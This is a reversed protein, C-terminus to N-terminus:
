GPSIYKGFASLWWRLGRGYYNTCSITKKKDKENYFWKRENFRAITSSRLTPLNHVPLTDGQMVGADIDFFDTDEDPSQVKVKTNKYLMM